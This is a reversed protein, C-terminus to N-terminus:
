TDARGCPCKNMQHTITPLQKTVPDRLCYMKLPPLPDKKVPTPPVLKRYLMHLFSQIYIM